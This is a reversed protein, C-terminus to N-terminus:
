HALDEITVKGDESKDMAIFWDKSMTLFEARSVEGDGNVDNFALEMGKHFGNGKGEEGGNGAHDNARAEDFTTYEELNLIGDEDLDFSAFVNDRKNFLEELTIAGDENTDWSKFFHQAMEQASATTTITLVALTILKKM